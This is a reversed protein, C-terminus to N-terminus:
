QVVVVLTATYLGKDVRADPERSFQLDPQELPPDSGLEGRTKATGRLLWDEAADAIATAAGIDRASAVVAFEHSDGSPRNALYADETFSSGRYQLTVYPVSAGLPAEVEFLLGVRQAREVTFAGPPEVRKGDADMGTEFESSTLVATMWAHADPRKM